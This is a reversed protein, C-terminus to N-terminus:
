MGLIKKLAMIIHKDGGSELYFSTYIRLLHHFEKEILRLYSMNAYTVMGAPRPTGLKAASYNILDHVKSCIRLVKSRVWMRILSLRFDCCGVTFYQLMQIIDLLIANTLRESSCLLSGHRTGRCSKYTVTTSNWYSPSYLHSMLLWWNSDPDSWGHSLSWVSDSPLSHTFTSCSSM